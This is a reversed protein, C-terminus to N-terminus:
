IYLRRLEPDVKGESWLAEFDEVLAAAEMPAHLTAYGIYREPEQKYLIATKDIVM